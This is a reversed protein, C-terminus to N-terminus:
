RPDAWTKRLNRGGLHVINAPGCMEAIRWLTREGYRRGLDELPLNSTFVAPRHQDHRESILQYMRDEAWGSGTVQEVGIDDLVLLGARQYRGMVDSEVARQVSSPPADTAARDSYPDGYADGDTREWPRLHPYTGYTSRLESLLAPTSQYRVSEGTVQLYRWAYAAAIATKGRGLGGWLYWSATAVDATQLRDLLGPNSTGDTLNPNDEFCMHRFRVPIGSHLEWQRALREAKTAEWAVAKCPCMILPAAYDFDSGDPLLPHIWGHGICVECTVQPWEPDDAPAPGRSLIRAIIEGLNDAM